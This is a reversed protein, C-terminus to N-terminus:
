TPLTRETAARGPGGPCRKRRRKGVGTSETISVHKTIRERAWLRPRGNSGVSAGVRVRKGLGFSIGIRM